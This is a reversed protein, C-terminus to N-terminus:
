HRYPYSGRLRLTQLPLFSQNGEETAEVEISAMIELRAEHISTNRGVVQSRALVRRMHLAALRHKAQTRFSV